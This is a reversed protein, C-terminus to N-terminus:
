IVRCKVINGSKQTENKEQTVANLAVRDNIQRGRTPSCPFYSLVVQLYKHKILLYFYGGICWLNLSM